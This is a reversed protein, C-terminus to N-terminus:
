FGTKGIQFGKEKTGIEDLPKSRNGRWLWFGELLNKISIMKKKCFSITIVTVTNVNGIEGAKKEGSQVEMVERFRM